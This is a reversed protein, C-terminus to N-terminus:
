PRTGRGSSTPRPSPASGTGDCRSGHCCFIFPRPHTPLSGSRQPIRSHRPPLLYRTDRPCARSSLWTFPFAASQGHKRQAVQRGLHESYFAFHVLSRAAFPKTFKCFHSLSLVAADAVGGSGLEPRIVCTSGQRGTSHAPSWLVDQHCPVSPRGKWGGAKCTLWSM